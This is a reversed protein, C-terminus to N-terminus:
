CRRTSDCARQQRPQHQLRQQALRRQIQRQPQQQRM